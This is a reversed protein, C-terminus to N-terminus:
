RSSFVLVRGDHRFGVIAESAAEIQKARRLGEAIADEAGTLSEDWGADREVLLERGLHERVLQVVLPFEEPTVQVIPRFVDLVLLPGQPRLQTECAGADVQGDLRALVRLSQNLREHFLNFAEPKPRTHLLFSLTLSGSEGLTRVKAIEPYHVLLAIFLSAQHYEDSNPHMEDRSLEDVSTGM